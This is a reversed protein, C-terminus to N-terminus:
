QLNYGEWTKKQMKKVCQLFFIHVRIYKCQNIIGRSGDSKHFFIVHIMKMFKKRSKKMFAAFIYALQALYPSVVLVQILRRYANLKVIEANFFKYSKKQVKAM